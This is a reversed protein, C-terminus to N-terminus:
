KTFAGSPSSTTSGGPGITVVVAYYSGAALPDVLSSIDVSIEGNVVAPKGLSRSAVPAVSVADTSRRLEVTTSTVNTAYDTPPVFMLTSPLASAPSVTVSVAVSTTKAGANDTAVATLSYTGAAVNSWTM